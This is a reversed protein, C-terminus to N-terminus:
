AALVYRPIGMAASTCLLILAQMGRASTLFWKGGHAMPVVMFGDQISLPGSLLQWGVSSQPAIWIVSLELSLALHLITLVHRFEQVQLELANAM